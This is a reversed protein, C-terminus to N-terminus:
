GCTGGFLNSRLPRGRLDWVGYDCEWSEWGPIILELPLGLSIVQQLILALCKADEKGRTIKAAGRGTSIEGSCLYHGPPLSLLVDFICSCLGDSSLFSWPGHM